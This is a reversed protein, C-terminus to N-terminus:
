AEGRVGLGGSEWACEIADYLDRYFVDDCGLLAHLIDRNKKRMM